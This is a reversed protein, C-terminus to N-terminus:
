LDSVDIKEHVEAGHCEDPQAQVPSQQVPEVQATGGAGVRDAAFSLAGRRWRSRNLGTM